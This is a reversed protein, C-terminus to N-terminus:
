SGFGTPFKFGIMEEEIAAVARASVQDDRGTGRIGRAHTHKALPWRSPM